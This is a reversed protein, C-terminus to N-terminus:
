SLQVSLRACPKASSPNCGGSVGLGSLRKMFMGQVMSPASDNSGGTDVGRLKMLSRASISRIMANEAHGCSMRGILPLALFGVSAYKWISGHHLSASLACATRRIQVHGEM